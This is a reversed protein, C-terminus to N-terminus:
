KEKAMTALFSEWCKGCLLGLSITMGFYFHKREKVLKCEENCCNECKSKVM